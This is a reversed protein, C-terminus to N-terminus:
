KRKSARSARGRRKGGDARSSASEGGGGKNGSWGGDGRTDRLNTTSSDARGPPRATAAALVVPEDDDFHDTAASSLGAFGSGSVPGPKKALAKKTRQRTKKGSPTPSSSDISEENSVDSTTDFEGDGNKSLKPVM